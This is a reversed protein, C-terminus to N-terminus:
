IRLMESHPIDDELYSKGTPVFGFQAYFALLYDQASIRISTRRYRAEITNVALKMLTKGLTMKRYKYNTLVRGISSEPYKIGPSFIRCYAAVEGNNEAWLHIAQPDYGDLEPYPCNQEVVFVDIRAKLIRHLEDTSLQDFTKINWIFDEM